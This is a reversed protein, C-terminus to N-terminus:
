DPGVSRVTFNVASTERCMEKEGRIVAQIRYQTKFFRRFCIFIEEDVILPALTEAM